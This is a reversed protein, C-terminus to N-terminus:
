SGIPQFPECNHSSCKELCEIAEAARKPRAFRRPEEFASAELASTINGIYLVEPASGDGDVAQVTYLGARVRTQWISWHDVASVPELHVVEVKELALCKRTGSGRRKAKGKARRANESSTDQAAVTSASKARGRARAKERRLEMGSPMSMTTKGSMGSM